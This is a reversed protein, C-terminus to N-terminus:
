KNLTFSPFVLAIHFIQEFDTRIDKNYSEVSKECQEPAKTTSNLSIFAAQIQKM